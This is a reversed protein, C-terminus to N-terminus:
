SRILGEALKRYWLAPMANGIGKCALIKNEPLKYWRPFSQFQALALPTMSVIRGTSLQARIPRRNQGATITFIPQGDTRITLGRMEKKSDGGYQCDVIFARPPENRALMNSMAVIITKLHEPMAAMQWDSFRGDPLGPMLDEVAQYWGRWPEAPPLWPVFGGRVARVIFRWREQPVGFDAACLVSADVMYGGEFLAPLIIKLWSESKRYLRVNELTFFRPKQVRVFEAVKRAMALDAETELAGANAISFSLCPPSAHVLDVKELLAPDISLIDAVIIKHDFNAQAVAAIEPEKEIAWAPTIGAQLMGIEVGGFGSFLVGARM